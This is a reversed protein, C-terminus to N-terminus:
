PSIPNFPPSDPVIGTFPVIPALPALIGPNVSIVNAATQSLARAIKDPPWEYPKGPCNDDDRRRSIDTGWNAKTLLVACDRNKVSVASNSVLLVGYQGDIPGGWFDTGRVALAAVPTKVTISKQGMSSIRGTAFRFAGRTANLASEGIGADPDFVFRDVVVTANEGLSLESRDRFTVQLRAQPGTRLTDSMRVITGVGAPEAGVSAQNAVSTVVGVSEASRAEMAALGSVLLAVVCRLIFRPIAM